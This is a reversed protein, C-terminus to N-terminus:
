DKTLLARRPARCFIICAISEKGFQESYNSSERVPDEGKTSRDIPIQEFHLELDTCPVFLLDFLPM